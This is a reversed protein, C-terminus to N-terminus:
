LATAYQYAFSVVLVEVQSQLVLDVLVALVIAPDVEPSGLGLAQSTGVLQVQPAPRGPFVDAEVEVVPQVLSVLLVLDAFGVLPVLHAQENDAVPDPGPQVVLGDDVVAVGLWPGVQLFGAGDGELGVTGLVVGAPYLKTVELKDIGVIM